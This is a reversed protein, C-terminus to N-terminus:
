KFVPIQLSLGTQFDPANNVLFDEKFYLSIKYDSHGYTYILSWISLNRYLTSFGHQWGGNIASWDGILTYYEAEEEKSYRSQIQYNVGLAHYNNKKTYLTYEINGEATALFPNNGLDVVTNFNVVNKRLLNIGIGLNVEKKNKLQFMKIVNASIGLDISPNFKSTNIGLHSGLNLFIHKTKNISLEPYYFHNFEIGGIFFDNNNLELTNNNRDTYKFNVQNLGYYRRGYPDEGGNINSHFWEITEDGTFFSFPHKGKTILYSRMSISLEHKKSLPITTTLRFEKIIADVVINMYDAPTTEQDIFYFNRKYRSLRSQEERVIPDKPLYAEVYPQFNNGSVSSINFTVTKPPTFKFNPNIRASFIGFHHTTLLTPNDTGNKFSLRDQQAILISCFFCFNLLTVKKLM